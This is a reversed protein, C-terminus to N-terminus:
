SAVSLTNNHDSESSFIESNQGCDGKGNNQIKQMLIFM